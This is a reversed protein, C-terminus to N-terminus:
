EATVRTRQQAIVNENQTAVATVTWTGSTPVNLQGTYASGDWTLTTEAKMEGMGMSPMPPMYFTVKVTAAQVPKGTVDTLHAMIHVANGSKPETPDFTLHLTATPKQSVHDTYEKAGGFMGTMGGTIRTQSDIMFAGRTVIQEGEELGAVIPYYGDYAEGLQVERPEFEGNGRAVYVLKWAGTDLVATKPVALVAGTNRASLRVRVFMGPRLRLEPNAVEIRAASTRTDGHVSPDLFSVHGHLKVGPLADTTIEAATGNPVRSVDGQYVDALVWVRSLDSVTLLSDGDHVYQGETVKREKVIGSVTSYIAIDEAPAGAALKEVQSRSLGWLELKRRSATVLEDAQTRAEEDAQALKKRSELALRYEQAAAVLDPSYIMAVLQGRRVPQGTFDLYLKDIRGAVRASITSLETEAEDVRGPVTLDTPIERRAVATLEVGISKQEAPTLMVSSSETNASGGAHTTHDTMPVPAPIPNAAAAPETPRNWSYYTIAAFALGLALGAAAFIKERKTM